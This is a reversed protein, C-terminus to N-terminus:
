MGKKFIRFQTQALGKTKQQWKFVEAHSSLLMCRLMCVIQNSWKAHSDYIPHKHGRLLWLNSDQKWELIFTNLFPVKPWFKTMFISDKPGQHRIFPDGQSSETSTESTYSPGWWVGILQCQLEFRWGGSSSWEKNYLSGKSLLRPDCM